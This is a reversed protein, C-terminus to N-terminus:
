NALDRDERLQDGFLTPNVNEKYVTRYRVSRVWVELKTDHKPNNKKKKYQTIRLRWNVSLVGIGDAHTVGESDEWPDMALFVLIEEDKGNKRSDYNEANAEQLPGIRNALMAELNDKQLGEVVAASAVLAVQKFKFKVADVTDFRGEYNETSEGTVGWRKGPQQGPTTNNKDQKEPKAKLREFRTQNAIETLIGAYEGILRDGGPVWTGTATPVVDQAALETILLLGAPNNEAFGKVFEPDSLKRGAIRQVFQTGGPNDRFLTGFFDNAGAHKRARDTVQDLAGRALVSVEDLFAVASPSLSQRLGDMRKGILFADLQGATPLQGRVEMIFQHLYEDGTQECTLGIRHLDERLPGVNVKTPDATEVPLYERRRPIPERSETVAM